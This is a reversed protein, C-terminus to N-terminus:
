TISDISVALEVAEEAPQEISVILTIINGCPIDSVDITMTETTGTTDSMAVFEAPTGNENIHGYITVYWEAAATTVDFALNIASGCGVGFSIEFASALGVLAMTWPGQPTSVDALDTPPSLLATNVAETARTGQYLVCYDSGDITLPKILHGISAM